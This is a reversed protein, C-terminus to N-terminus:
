LHHLFSAAERKDELVPIGNSNWIQLFLGEAPLDLEREERRTEIEAKVRNRLPKRNKM